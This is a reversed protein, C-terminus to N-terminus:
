RALVLSTRGYMTKLLKKSEQFFSVLTVPQHITSPAIQKPNRKKAAHQNSLSHVKM